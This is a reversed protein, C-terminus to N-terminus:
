WKGLINNASMDQLNQQPSLFIINLVAFHHSIALNSWCSCIENSLIKVEKNLSTDISQWFTYGCSIWSLNWDHFTDTSWRGASSSSPSSFINIENKWWRSSNHLQPLSVLAFHHNQPKEWLLVFQSAYYIYNSSPRAARAPSTWLYEVVILSLSKWLMILFPCFHVKLM